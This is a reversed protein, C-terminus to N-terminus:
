PNRYWSLLPASGLCSGGMHISYPRAASWDIELVKEQKWPNRVSDPVEEVLIPASSEVLLTFPGEEGKSASPVILVPWNDDFFPLDFSCAPVEDGEGSSALVDFSPALFSGAMVAAMEKRNRVVHV